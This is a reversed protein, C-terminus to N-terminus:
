VPPPLLYLTSAFIVQVAAIVEPASTSWEGFGGQRRARWPKKAGDRIPPLLRSFSDGTHHGERANGAPRIVDADCTSLRCKRVLHWVWDVLSFQL